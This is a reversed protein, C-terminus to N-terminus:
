LSMKSHSDFKQRSAKRLLAVIWHPHFLCAVSLCRWQAQLCCHLTFVPFVAKWVMWSQLLLVLLCLQSRSFQVSGVLSTNWNPAAAWIDDRWCSKNNHGPEAPTLLSKLQILWHSLDRDSTNQRSIVWITDPLAEAAWQGPSKSAYNFMTFPPQM